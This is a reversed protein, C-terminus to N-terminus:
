YSNEAPLTDKSSEKDETAMFANTGLEVKLKILGTRLARQRSNKLADSM